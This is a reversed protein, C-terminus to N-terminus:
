VDPRAPSDNISSDAEVSATLQGGDSQAYLQSQLYREHLYRGVVVVVATVPLALLVGLFGFLQGGAMISFIVAVPHLGIQDGVLWPTLFFSELTQGIAFVALVLGIHLMDGHQVMAAILGAIIGIAAGLYPVFSLLGAVMGILIGLEIGAMWLGIGYVLGLVIMVSIQGRLFSSLARDSQKALQSVVPEISRPLLEHVREIMLHWDRLFYFTVIPVLSLTAIWGFVAFGSKSITGLVNGAIGGAQRWHDKLMTVWYDPSVYGELNMGSQAELWPVATTGLWEGFRPLWSGFSEIQNQVLPILLLVVVAALVTMLAFVLVVATQRSRGSRQIREVLPNGLWALLASFVFPTLIPSLLWVLGGVALLLALLQWRRTTNDLRETM